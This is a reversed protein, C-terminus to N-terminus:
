IDSQNEFQDGASLKVAARAGSSKPPNQALGFRHMAGAFAAGPAIREAIGRPVDSKV